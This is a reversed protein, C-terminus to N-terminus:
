VAWCFVGGVVQQASAADKSNYCTQNSPNGNRIGVTRSAIMTDQVYEDVYLEPAEYKKKMIIEKRIKAGTEPNIESM